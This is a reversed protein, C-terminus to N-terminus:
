RERLGQTLSAIQYTFFGLITPIEMLGVSSGRLKGVLVLLLVLFAFRAQGVGAGQVNLEVDVTGGLTEVYKGLGYIYALGFMAGFIFSLPVMPNDCTLWLLAVLLSSVLATEQILKSQTRQFQTMQERKLSLETKRTMDQVLQRQQRWFEDQDVQDLYDNTNNNKDNNNYNNSPSSSLSSLSPPTMFLGRPILKKISTTSRAMKQKISGMSSRIPVAAAAAAVDDDDFTKMGRMLSTFSSQSSFGNAAPLTTMTMIIATAPFLLCFLTALSTACVAADWSKRRSQTMAKLAVAM